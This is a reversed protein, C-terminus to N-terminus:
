VAGFHRSPPPIPLNSAQIRRQDRPRGFGHKKVAVMGRGSCRPLEREEFSVPELCAPKERRFVAWEGFLPQMPTKRFVERLFGRFLGTPCRYFTAIRPQQTGPNVSGPTCTLGLSLGPLFSARPDYPPDSISAKESTFYSTNSTLGFIEDKGRRPKLL